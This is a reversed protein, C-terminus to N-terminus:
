KCQALGLVCRLDRSPPPNAPTKPNEVPPATPSPAPTPMTSRPPSAGGATGGGTGGGPLTGTGPMPTGGTDFNYTPDPIGGNYQISNIAGNAQSEWRRLQDGLPAISGNMQNVVGEAQQVVVKCAANALYSLIGNLSLEAISPFKPLTARKAVELVRDLCKKANAVMSTNQALVNNIRELDGKRAEQLHVKTAACPAGTQATAVACALALCLAVASLRHQRIM